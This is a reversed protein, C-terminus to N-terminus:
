MNTDLWLLLGTVLVKSTGLTTIGFISRTKFTRGFPILTFVAFLIYMELILTEIKIGLLHLSVKM